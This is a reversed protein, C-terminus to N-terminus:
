LPRPIRAKLRKAYELQVPGMAAWEEIRQLAVPGALRLTEATPKELTHHKDRELRALLAPIIQEPLKSIQAGLATIVAFENLPHSKHGAELWRLLEPVAAPGLKGLAQAAASPELSYPHHLAKALAAIAEPHPQGLASLSQIIENRVASDRENELARGMRGADQLDGMRALLLSAKGRTHYNRPPNTLHRHLVPRFRRAAAEDIALIAGIAQIQLEPHPDKTLAGLPKVAALAQQKM